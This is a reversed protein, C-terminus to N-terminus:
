KFNYGGFLLIKQKLPHHRALRILASFPDESIAADKVVNAVKVGVVNSLICNAVLWKEIANNPLARHKGINIKALFLAAAALNLNTM